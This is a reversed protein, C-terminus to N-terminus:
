RVTRMRTRRDQRGYSEDEGGARWRRQDQEDRPMFGCAKMAQMMANVAAEGAKAASWTLLPPWMTVVVASPASRLPGYKMSPASGPSRITTVTTASSGVAVVPVDADTIVALETSGFLMPVFPAGTGHVISRALPTTRNSRCFTM